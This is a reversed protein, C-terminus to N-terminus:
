KLNKISYIGQIRISHQLAESKSNQPSIKKKQPLFALQPLWPLPTWVNTSKPRERGEGDVSERRGKM